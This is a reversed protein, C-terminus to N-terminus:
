HRDVGRRGCRTGPALRTDCGGHGMDGRRFGAAPGRAPRASTVDSNPHPTRRM